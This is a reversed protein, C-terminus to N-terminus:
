GKVRILEAFIVMLVIVAVSIVNNLRILTRVIGRLNTEEALVSQLRPTYYTILLGSIVAVVTLTISALLFLGDPQLLSKLNFTGQLVSMTVGTSSIVTLCVWSTVTVKNEVFRSVLNAQIRSITSVKPEFALELM